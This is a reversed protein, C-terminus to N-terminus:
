KQKLADFFLEPSFHTSTEVIKRTQCHFNCVEAEGCIFFFFFFVFFQLIVFLIYTSMFARALAQKELYESQLM